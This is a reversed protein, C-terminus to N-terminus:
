IDGCPQKKLWWFITRLLLLAKGLSPAPYNAAVEGLFGCKVSSDEKSGVLLDEKMVNYIDEVSL